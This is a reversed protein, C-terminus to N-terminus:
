SSETKSSVAERRDYWLNRSLFNQTSSLLRAFARSAFTQRPLNEGTEAMHVVPINPATAKVEEGGVADEM